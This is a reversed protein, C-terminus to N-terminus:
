RGQSQAIAKMRRLEQLRARKADVSEDLGASSLIGEIISPGRSSAGLRTEKETSAGGLSYKSGGASKQSPRSASSYKYGRDEAELIAQPDDLVFTSQNQENWLRIQKPKKIKEPKEFVPTKGYKGGM